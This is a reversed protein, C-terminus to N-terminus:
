GTQRRFWLIRALNNQSQYPLPDLEMAQRAQKEAEDMRGRYVIVRALLDNATPNAPSLEKARKLESLGEPFKWETFFGFGVWPAAHAEALNPRSRSPKRRM